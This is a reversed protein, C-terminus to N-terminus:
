ASKNLLKIVEARPVMVARSKVMGFQLSRKSAKAGNLLGFAVDWAGTWQTDAFHRALFEHRTAVAIFNSDNVPGVLIGFNKVKGMEVPDSFAAYVREGLTRGNGAAARMLHFFCGVPDDEPSGCLVSLAKNSVNPLDRDAELLARAAEPGYVQNIMGVYRAVSNIKQIHIGWAKRDRGRPLHDDSPHPQARKAQSIIEAEMINFAAIWALKWKLAKPGNFGMALLTFGDRDMDYARTQRSGGNPMKAEYSTGRFKPACADGGEVILNDISALVHDHRKCFYEAVDVSSAFVAGAKVFVTPQVETKEMTETTMSCARGSQPSSATRFGHGASCQRLGPLFDM